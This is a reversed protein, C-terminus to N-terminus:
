RQADSPMMIRSNEPVVFILWVVTSMNGSTSSRRSSEFWYGQSKKRARTMM